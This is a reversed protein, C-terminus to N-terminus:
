AARLRDAPIRLAEGAVQVFTENPSRDNGLIIPVGTLGDCGILGVELKKERNTAVISAMGYEIFYAHSILRNPVELVQRLPLTVPELDPKLLAVDDDSLRRLIRNQFSTFPKQQQM